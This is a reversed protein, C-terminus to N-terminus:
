YQETITLLKKKNLVQYQKPYKKETSVLVGLNMFKLIWRTATERTVGALEAIIEQTINLRGSIDCLVQAIRFPVPQNILRCIHKFRQSYLQLAHQNSITSVVIESDYVAIADILRPIGLVVEEGFIDNPIMLDFTFIKGNIGIIALKIMGNIVCYACNSEDGRHYLVQGKKFKITKM